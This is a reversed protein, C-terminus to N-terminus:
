EVMEDEAKTSKLSSCGNLVLCSIETALINFKLFWILITTVCKKLTYIASLKM